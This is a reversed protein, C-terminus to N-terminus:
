IAAASSRPKLVWPPPIRSTWENVAEDNFVATFDPVPIGIERAKMRMALKDRFRSATTRGMGPVQLHERLMAATEVDFDDLAVIRELRNARAIADVSRTYTSADADR